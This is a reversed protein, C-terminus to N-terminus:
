NLERATLKITDLWHPYAVRNACIALRDAVIENQCKETRYSPYASPTGCHFQKHDGNVSRAFDQLQQSINTSRVNGSDKRAGEIQNFCIGYANGLFVLVPIILEGALM